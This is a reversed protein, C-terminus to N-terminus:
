LDSFPRGGAAHRRLCLAEAVPKRPARRAGTHDAAV